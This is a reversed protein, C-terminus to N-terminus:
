TKYLRQKLISVFRFLTRNKCILLTSFYLVVSTCIASLITVLNSLQLMKIYLCALIIMACGLLCSVIDMIRFKARFIDKSNYVCIILSLAEAIATTFAAANEKLFPILIINLIVNILASLVTAFLVKKERGCPILISSTFFWNYLCFLLAICLLRLSTYASIYDQSSILLVVQESLCFLGVVAPVVIITLVNVIGNALEKFENNKKNSWLHSLRPISVIIIASLVQKTISYIKSSVTYIGVQYDSTLLGLITVDSNVYIRTAISNAFLILIPAIHVLIRKDFVITLSCYRRIGIANVICSGSNSIVVIIAYWLVDNENRVFLFMLILSLLQFLITRVTIYLFEENIIYVWECGLTTFIMSVSLVLIISAYNRLRQAVVLLVILCLYSIITSFFNISFVESAFRSFSDKSERYRASERVAYTSVGLGATLYFYDIISHSYTYRGLNEVGLIKTVYPITILPFVLSIITKLGNIIANLGISKGRSNGM